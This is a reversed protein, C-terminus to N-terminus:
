MCHSTIFFTWKNLVSHAFIMENQDIVYNQHRMQSALTPPFKCYDSTLFFEFVSM